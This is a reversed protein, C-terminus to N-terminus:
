FRDISFFFFLFVCSYLVPTLFAFFANGEKAIVSSIRSFGVHVSRIDALIASKFTVCFELRPKITHSPFGCIWQVCDTCNITYLTIKEALCMAVIHFM